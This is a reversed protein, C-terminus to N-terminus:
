SLLLQDADTLGDMLSAVMQMYADEVHRLLARGRDTLRVLYYRRDGPVATREVLAAKEMRDILSTINARNVLMMRSLEVQTLGGQDGSQYHLLMMVNFQVDTTGYDRFFEDARKKLLAATFYISLLTEHPRSQLGNRLQLERELKM